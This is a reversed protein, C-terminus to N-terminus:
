AWILMYPKIIQFTLYFSGKASVKSMCNAFNNLYVSCGVNFMHKSLKVAGSSVLDCFIFIVSFHKM